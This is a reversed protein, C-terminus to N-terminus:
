RDGPQVGREISIRAGTHPCAEKCSVLRLLQVATTLGDLYGRRYDVPYSSAGETFFRKERDLIEAIESLERKIM